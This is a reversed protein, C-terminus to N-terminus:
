AYQEAAKRAAHSRRLFARQIQRLQDESVDCKEEVLERKLQGLDTLARHRALEAALDRDGTLIKLM